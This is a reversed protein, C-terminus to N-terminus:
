LLCYYYLDFYLKKMGDSNVEIPNIDREGRRMQGFANTLAYPFQSSSLSNQNEFKNEAGLMAAM